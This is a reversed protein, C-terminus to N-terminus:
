VDNNSVVHKLVWHRSITDGLAKAGHSDNEGVQSLDLDSMHLLAAAPEVVLSNTAALDTDVRFWWDEKEPITSEFARFIFDEHEVNGRKLQVLADQAQIHSHSIEIQLNDAEASISKDSSTFVVRLSTDPQRVILTALIESLLYFTIPDM